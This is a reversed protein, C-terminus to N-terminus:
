PRRRTGLAPRGPPLRETIPEQRRLTVRERRRGTVTRREIHVEEVVRLRKVVVPVEELVSIVLTEGDYRDPVPTDVFRDVPVRRVVVEDRTVPTDVIEHRERTVTRVRVRGREIRRRGLRLREAAVPITRSASPTAHRRRM